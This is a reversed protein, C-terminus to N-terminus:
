KNEKVYVSARSQIVEAVETASKEGKFFADTEETVMNFIEEDYSSITDARDILEKIEEIDEDTPNGIYFSIDGIGYESYYKTGDPATTLERNQTEEFLKDLADKRVPFEWM